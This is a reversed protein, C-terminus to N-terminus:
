PLANPAPIGAGTAAIAAAAEGYAAVARRVAETVARSSITAGTIGDIDGGDKKVAWRVKAPDQGERAFRTALFRPDAVKSGLGPTENQAIVKVQRITGDANFGIMVVIPGGYGKESRSEVAAGVYTDARRAVFFRWAGNTHVTQDPQNDCDPLVERIALRTEDQRAKEIPDKTAAYTLALMLGAGASILTLVVILRVLEKM